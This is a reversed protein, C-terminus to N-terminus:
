AATTHGPTVAPWSISRVIVYKCTRSVWSRYIVQCWSVMTVNIKTSLESKRSWEKQRSLECKHFHSRHTMLTSLFKWIWCHTLHVHLWLILLDAACVRKFCIIQEPPWIFFFFSWIRLKQEKDLSTHNHSLLWCDDHSTILFFSFSFLQSNENYVFRMHIWVLVVHM